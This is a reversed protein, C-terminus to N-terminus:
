GMPPSSIGEEMEEAGPLAEENGAQEGADSVGAWLELTRLMDPDYNNLSLNEIKRQLVDQFVDLCRM